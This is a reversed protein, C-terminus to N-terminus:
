AAPAVKAKKGTVRIRFDRNLSPAVHDSLPAEDDQVLKSLKILHMDYQEVHFILNPVLRAEKVVKGVSLSGAEHSEFKLLAYINCTLTRTSALVLRVQNSIFRRRETVYSKLQAGMLKYHRLALRFVLERSKDSLSEVSALTSGIQVLEALKLYLLREQEKRAKTASDFQEPKYYLTANHGPISAGAFVIPDERMQAAAWECEDLAKNLATVLTSLVTPANSVSLLDFRSQATFSSPGTDNDSSEAGSDESPQNKKEQDPTSRKSDSDGMSNVSVLNEENDSEEGEEEEDFKKIQRAIAEGVPVLRHGEPSRLQEISLFLSVTVDVCKAHPIYMSILNRRLWRGLRAPVKVKPVLLQVIQLGVQLLPWNKKGPLLLIRQCVEECLFFACLDVTDDNTGGANTESGSSIKENACELMTSELLFTELQATELAVEMCEKLANLVPVTLDEIDQPVVYSLLLKGVQGAIQSPSKDDFGASLQAMEVISSTATGDLLLPADVSSVKRMEHLEKLKTLLVEMLVGSSTEKDRIVQLINSV